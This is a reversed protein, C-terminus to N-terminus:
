YDAPSDPAMVVASSSIGLYVYLVFALSLYFAIYPIM